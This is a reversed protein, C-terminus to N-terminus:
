VLIIFVLCPFSSLHDRRFNVRLIQNTGEQPAAVLKLSQLPANPTPFHRTAESPPSLTMDFLFLVVEPHPHPRRQM